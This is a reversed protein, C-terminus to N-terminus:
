STTARRNSSLRSSRAANPKVDPWIEVAAEADRPLVLDLRTPAPRDSRLRATFLDDFEALRLPRETTPLTCADPTWDEAM